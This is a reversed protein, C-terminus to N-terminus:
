IFDEGSFGVINDIVDSTMLDGGKVLFREVDCNEKLEEYLNRAIEVDIYPLGVSNFYIIEHENERGKKNGNIIEHLDGYIDSDMLEGEVYMRSITQSRHKVEEWVDCIVKSCKKAVAYEDEYGATHCYLTGEKIWDAKLLPEQATTATVIIDADEVALKHNGDCCVFEVDKYNRKLKNVFNKESLSNRSSVYCRNINTHIEKMAIFNSIAQVGSGILGITTCEKKALYKSAIANISATRLATCLSFDVFALPMGNKTDSILAISTANLLNNESPNNPFVSVWKMGCVDHKNLSAIMCNIREQNKKNFVQSIKVENAVKGDTYNSIANEVISLMNKIKVCESHLVNENNILLAEWNKDLDESEKVNNGM